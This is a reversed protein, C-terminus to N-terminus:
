STPARGFLEECAQFRYGFIATLQRKVFAVHAISGLPGLPLDYDVVDKMLVGGPVETFEHLHRWLSYPGSLQRDVFRVGPEWVDIRTKWRMPVGMLRIRYDILTGEAMDLPLPTLIEFGLWPPTLRELNEARAFFDFVEGMPRPILQERILQHAMAPEPKSAPSLHPNDRPRLDRVM